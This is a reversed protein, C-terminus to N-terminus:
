ILRVVAGPNLQQIQALVESAPMDAMFATPLTDTGFLERVKPDNSRSMWYFGARSLEITEIMTQMMAGQRWLSADRKHSSAIHRRRLATQPRRTVCDPARLRPIRFLQRVNHTERNLAYVM